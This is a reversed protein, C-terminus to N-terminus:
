SNAEADRLQRLRGIAALPMVGAPAVARVRLIEVCGQFDAATLGSREDIVQDPRIHATPGVRVALAGLRKMLEAHARRFAEIGAYVAEHHDRLAVDELAQGVRKVDLPDIPGITAGVVWLRVLKCGTLWSSTPLLDSSQGVFPM